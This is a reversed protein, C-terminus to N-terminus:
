LVFFVQQTTCKIEVSPVSVLGEIIIVSEHSLGSVYKVMQRSATDPQVTVVCQVTFKRERLVVFSINKGVARITQARGRIRVSCNELANTLTGVKTRGSVDEVRKSRIEKLPVDGYNAALRDEEDVALSRASAALAEQEQSRRLKEQKLAEKKTANKSVSALDENTPTQSSAEM